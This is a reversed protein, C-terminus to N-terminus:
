LATIWEEPSPQALTLELSNKVLTVTAGSRQGRFSETSYFSYLRNWQTIEPNKQKTTQQKKKFNIGTTCFM